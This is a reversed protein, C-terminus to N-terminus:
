QPPGLRGGPGGGLATASSRLWQGSSVCQLEIAAPEDPPSPEAPTGGLHRRFFALQIHDVGGRWDLHSWAGIRLSPQGAAARCRQWLDLVGRLHPDHWGGILLM